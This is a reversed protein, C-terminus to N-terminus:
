RSGGMSHKQQSSPISQGLGMFAYGYTSSLIWCIIESCIEYRWKSTPVFNIVLFGTELSTVTSNYRGTWVPVSSVRLQTCYITIGM